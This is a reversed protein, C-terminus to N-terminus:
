VTASNRSLFDQLSSVALEKAEFLSELHERTNILGMAAVRGHEDILVGYPLKAIGFSRGLNESVCYDFNELRNARVFRDHGADTGDSALVIDLWHAEAGATSRIAPLLRKCVPCDPSLFFLLQSRGGRNGGIQAVGGRLTPIAHRPAEAGVAINRQPLMLAGAPAIREHLIGLQRALAICIFGLVIVALWSMVQSAVLFMM